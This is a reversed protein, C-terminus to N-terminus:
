MQIEVYWAGDKLRYDVTYGLKALIHKIVFNGPDIMSSYRAIGNQRGISIISELMYSGLGASQWSDLVTVALDAADTETRGYRAVAVISACPGAATAALAFERPYDVHTFRYLMDEPLSRLHRLFRLYKTRPSLSGFLKLILPGDNEGIPRIIVERGDRLIFRRETKLM